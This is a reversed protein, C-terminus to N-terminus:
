LFSISLVPFHNNKYNFLIRTRRFRGKNAVRMGKIGVDM